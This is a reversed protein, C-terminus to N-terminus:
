VVEFLYELRLKAGCIIGVCKIVVFCFYEMSKIRPPKDAKAGNLMSMYRGANGEIAFDNFVSM